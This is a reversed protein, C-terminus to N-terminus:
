KKELTLLADQIRELNEILWQAQNWADNAATVISAQEGTNCFLAADIAEFLPGGDGNDRYPPALWCEWITRRLRQYITETATHPM